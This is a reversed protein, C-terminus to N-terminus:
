LCRTGCKPCIIGDIGVGTTFIGWDCDPNPCIVNPYDDCNHNPGDPGHCLFCINNRCNECQGDILNIGEYWIYCSSCPTHDQVAETEQVTTTEETAQPMSVEETPHTATTSETAQTPATEEVITNAEIEETAHTAVTEEMATPLVTEEQINVVSEEISQDKVPLNTSTNTDCGVLVSICVMAILLGCIVRYM